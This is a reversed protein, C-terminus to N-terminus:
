CEIANALSLKEAVFAEFDDAHVQYEWNNYLIILYDDSQVPRLQVDEFDWKETDIIIKEGINLNTVELLM